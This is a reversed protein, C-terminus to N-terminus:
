VDVGARGLFFEWPGLTWLRTTGEATAARTNGDESLALHYIDAVHGTLDPSRRAEAPERSSAPTGCM